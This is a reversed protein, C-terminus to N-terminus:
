QALAIAARLARGVEEVDGSSFAEVLAAVSEGYAAEDDDLEQSEPPEDTLGGLILGIKGNQEDAM